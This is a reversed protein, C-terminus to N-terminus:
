ILAKPDETDYGVSGDDAQIPNSLPPPTNALVKVLKDVDGRPNFVYGNGDIWLSESDNVWTIMPVRESVNILVKAPLGIQVSVDTLESYAKELADEMTNPDLIFIPKSNVNLTNNIEEHSLRLAGRVEMAQVQFIPSTLLNNLLWILAVVLSFSLLRWGLKIVPFSPLRIEVGTTPLAIDYRRKTRAKKQKQNTQRTQSYGGVRVMVPPMKRASM